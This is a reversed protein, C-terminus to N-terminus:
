LYLNLCMKKEYTTTFPGYFNIGSMRSLARVLDHTMFNKDGLKKSAALIDYAVISIIKLKLFLIIMTKLQLFEGTAVYSGDDRTTGVIIAISKNYKGSSIINQPTDPLLNNPGGISISRGGPLVKGDVLGGM